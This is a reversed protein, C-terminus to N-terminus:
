VRGGPVLAAWSINGALGAGFGAAAEPDLDPGSENADAADAGADSGGGGAM